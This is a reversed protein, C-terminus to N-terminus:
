GQENTNLYLNLNESVEFEIIDKPPQIIRSKNKTNFIKMEQRKIVFDGFHEISVIRKKKIDKSILDIVRNFIKLTKKRKLKSERSIRKVLDAKDM